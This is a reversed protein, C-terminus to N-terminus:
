VMVDVDGFNNCHGDNDVDRGCVRCPASVDTAVTGSERVKMPRCVSWLKMACDAAFVAMAPM